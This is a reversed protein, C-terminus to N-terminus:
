TCTVAPDADPTPTPTIPASPARVVSDFASGLVLQLEGSTGPDAIQAAAPVSAGLLAAANTQDPSFRILTEPTPQAANTVTGVRFGLGSLIDGIHSAQGAQNSANLIDVHVDAPHPAVPAAVAAPLPAGSRVADFLAKADADVPVVGSGMPDPTSPIARFAVDRGGPSSLSRAIALVQDLGARDTSLAPGLTARVAAVRSGDILQSNSLTDGLVAALVLQQRAVPGQGDTPDGSVDAAHVYDAAARGDLTVSGAKSAVPGLRADVVPRPVCVAVGSVADVMPGVADLDLGVYRTVALGTLQQVARTLCRPGGLSLAGTLLTRTAPPVIDTGYRGTAPDFRNCTPRDLELQAPFTLVVVPGGGAGIHAVSVTGAGRSAAGDTTTAAATSVLLINEAGQQAAPDVIMSSGPDLAAVTQMGSGLWQQVAWGGGAAVVVAVVATVALLRVLSPRRRRAPDAPGPRRGAATRHDADDAGGARDLVVGAHAATLRTLTADIRRAREETSATVPQEQRSRGPTSTASTDHAAGSRLRASGPNGRTGQVRGAPPLDDRRRPGPHGPADAPPRHVAPRLPAPPVGHHQPGPGDDTRHAPGPNGGGRASPRPGEAVM